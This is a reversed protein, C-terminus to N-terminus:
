LKEGPKRVGKKQLTGFFKTANVVYECNFLYSGKTKYFLFRSFVFELWFLDGVMDADTKTVVLHENKQTSKFVIWAHSVKGTCKFHVANGFPNAEFFNGPFSLETYSYLTNV